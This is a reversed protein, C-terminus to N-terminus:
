FCASFCTRYSLNSFLSNVVPLNGSPDARKTSTPQSPLQYLRTNTAQVPRLDKILNTFLAGLLWLLFFSVNQFGTFLEAYPEFEKRRGNRELMPATSIEMFFALLANEMAKPNSLVIRLFGQMAHVKEESWKVKSIASVFAVAYASLHSALAPAPGLGLRGLAIAANESLSEPIQSNFLLAVFRQLLRDTYPAIGDKHRMAIEGCSWCANNIVSYGPDDIDLVAVHQLDIQDILIPMLKPLYAQLQSFVFISCDGLLAYASQKVDNSEDQLCYSLMEFLPPQSSAVLEAAKRQDLAQVIASILDLSTVLFDTEPKDLSANNKAAISYELNTQVLQCCRGWIPPAFEAFSDGLASAVYSLCELLPFMERSQDSVKQWRAVLAPMLLNVIEPQALTSSVNEALTQVCDYLIFMNRDKYKAFCKVFQQVIVGCYQALQSSAKEELSAFASAAAEQVRKNSDLMRQLIGEMIPVFYQQRGADDLHAAWQSYRGLTWCTIQRVVPASDQLVKILYPVLDPLHPQVVEMCGDAIAGLALVAAERNPWEPHVLNVKLYPLTVEFVPQHFVSALVDLAAASCKRLNWQEEPDGGEDDDDDFDDIEGESLDDDGGDAAKRYGNNGNPEQSTDEGNAGAANRAAKQAAFAPRIDQERDEEEADEAEAELRLVDDESYVMSELLVPVIKPLHPGLFTRLNDDEGVSLWFEAADLALEPDEQNRQQAIIFDVLGPIHPAIKEPTAEALTIFARCVHKRVDDSPDSTLHFLCQLLLDFHEVAARPKEPIFVNLAALANVRVKPSQNGLFEILKPFLFTLPREGSYDRDLQRRNDECIKYLASMAGEQSHLALTESKNETMSILELLIQPWTVIGGQKVLETIVNGAYNRIQASPDQLGALIVSKIFTKSSEPIARFSTKIDNKLMIAAASRAAHYGDQTLNIAAPPERCTFLYALYNNIDPYSKAQKLMQFM